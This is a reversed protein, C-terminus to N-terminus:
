KIYELKHVMPYELEHRHFPWPVSFNRHPSKAHMSSSRIDRAQMLRAGPRGHSAMTTPLASGRM